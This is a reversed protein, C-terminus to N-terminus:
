FGGESEDATSSLGVVRRTDKLLLLSFELM